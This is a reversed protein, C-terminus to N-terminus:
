RKVAAPVLISLRRLWDGMRGRSFRSEASLLIRRMQARTAHEPIPGLWVSTGLDEFLGRVPALAAQDAARMPLVVDVHQAVCLRVLDGVFEPGDSVGIEFRGSGPAECPWFLSNDCALLELPERHLAALMSRGAPSCAGTVLVTYNM